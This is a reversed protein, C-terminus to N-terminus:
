NSLVNTVYDPNGDTLFAREFWIDRGILKRFKDAARPSIFKAVVPPEDAVAKKKRNAVQKSRPM